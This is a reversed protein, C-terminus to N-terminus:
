APHSRFFGEGEAYRERCVPAGRIRIVINNLVYTAVYFFLISHVRANGVERCVPMCWGRLAVRSPGNGMSACM